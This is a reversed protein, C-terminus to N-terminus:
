GGDFWLLQWGHPLSSRREESGQGMGGAGRKRLLGGLAAGRALMVHGRLALPM